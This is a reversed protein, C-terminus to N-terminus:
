RPHGKTSIIGPNTIVSNSNHVQSLKPHISFIGVGSAKGEQQEICPCKPKSLSM